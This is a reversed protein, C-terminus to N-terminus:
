SGIQTSRSWYQPYRGMFREREEGKLNGIFPRFNTLDLSPNERRLKLIKHLYNEFDEGYEINEWYFYKKNIRFRGESADGTALGSSAASSRATFTAVKLLREWIKKNGVSTDVVEDLPLTQTAHNFLGYQVIKVLRYNTLIGVTKHWTVSLYYYVALACTSSVLACALALNLWPGTELLTPGLEFCLWYITLYTTLLALVLWSYRLWLLRRSERTAYLIVESSEQGPFKYLYPFEFDGQVLLPPKANIASM